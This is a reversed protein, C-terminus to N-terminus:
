KGNCVVSIDRAHSCENLFLYRCDSLTYDYSECFLQDIFVPGSGEGYFAGTFYQAARDYFIISHVYM